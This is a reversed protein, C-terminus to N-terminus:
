RARRSLSRHTILALAGLLAAGLASAAAITTTSLGGDNAPSVNLSVAGGVGSQVQVIGRMVSPHVECRYYFAGGTNFTVVYPWGSLTRVGSDEIPNTASVGAGCVTWTGDTCETVSHPDAALPAPAVWQVSDGQQVVATCSPDPTAQM